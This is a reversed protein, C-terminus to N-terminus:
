ASCESFGRSYAYSNFDIFRDGTVGQLNGGGLAQWPFCMGSIPGKRVAVIAGLFLDLGDPELDRHSILLWFYLRSLLVFNNESAVSLIKLGSVTQEIHALPLSCNDERVRMTLVIESIGADEPFKKRWGRASSNIKAQGRIGEQLDSFSM